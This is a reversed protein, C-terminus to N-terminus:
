KWWGKLFYHVDTINQEGPGTFFHMFAEKTHKDIRIQVELYNLQTDGSSIAGAGWTHIFDSSVPILIGQGYKYTELNGFFDFLGNNYKIFTYDNQGSSKKIDVTWSDLKDM